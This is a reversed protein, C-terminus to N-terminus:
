SHIRQRNLSTPALGEGSANLSSFAEHEHDHDLNHPPNPCLWSYSGPSGRGAKPEKRQLLGGEAAVLLKPSERQGPFPGEQAFCGSSLCVM